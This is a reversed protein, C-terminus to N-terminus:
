PLSAEYTKLANLVRDSANSYITLGGVMQRHEADIYEFGSFYDLNSPMMSAIFGNGVLIPGCRGDLGLKEAPVPTTDKTIEEVLEELKEVLTQYDM